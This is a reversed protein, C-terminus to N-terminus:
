KCWQRRFCLRSLARWKEYELPNIVEIEAYIYGKPM